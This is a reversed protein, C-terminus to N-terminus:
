RPSARRSREPRVTKLRARAGEFDASILFVSVWTRFPRWREALATVEADSPLTPLRYANQVAGHLTPEGIPLVDTPGCGRILIGDASWNGIGRIETLLAHAEAYPMAMLRDRDLVGELAAAAVAQLRRWKEEPVGDFRELKLISQPRPFALAVADGVDVTDGTAEALRAQIAAAQTMRLRQSLVAWGAMAYPSAAVVPRFAPRRTLLPALVADRELLRFFPRADHDLGLMRELQPRVVAGDKTGFIEAEIAVGDKGWRLRAATPEFSGDRPFAVTVSGDGVGCSRTGRLFGCEMRRIPELSFPGRPVITLKM